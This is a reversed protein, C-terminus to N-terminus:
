KITVWANAQAESGLKKGAASAKFKDLDAGAPPLQVIEGTKARELRANAYIREVQALDVTDKNERAIEQYLAKRDTNEADVIKQAAAKKEADNMEDSARLEVYGKNTEGVSQTKKLASVQPDRERMRSAIEKIRPSSTNLSQAHATRIPTIADWVRAWLNPRAHMLRANSDISDSEGEIFDLIDDAQDEIHRIDVRVYADIKHETKLTCGLVIALLVAATVWGMRKM